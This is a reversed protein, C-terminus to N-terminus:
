KLHHLLLTFVMKKFIFIIIAKFQRRKAIVDNDLTRSFLGIVNLRLQRIWLYRTHYKKRYTNDKQQQTNVNIKNHISM